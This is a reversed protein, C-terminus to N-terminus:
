VDASFKTIFEPLGITSFHNGNIITYDIIQNYNNRDADNYNLAFSISDTFMDNILKTELAAHIVVQSDKLATSEKNLDVNMQWTDNYKSDGFTVKFAPNHNAKFNFQIIINLYEGVSNDKFTTTELSFTPLLSQRHKFQEIRTNEQQLQQVEKQSKLTDRLYRLTYFTVAVMSWDSVSGWVEASFPGFSNIDM